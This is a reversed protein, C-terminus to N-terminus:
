LKWHNMWQLLVVWKAHHKTLDKIKESLQSELLKLHLKDQDKVINPPYREEGEYNLILHYVENWQEETLFYKTDGDLFYNENDRTKNSIPLTNNAARVLVYDIIKDVLAKTNYISKM